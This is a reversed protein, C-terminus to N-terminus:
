SALPPGEKEDVNSSEVARMWAVVAIWYDLTDQAMVPAIRVGNLNHENYMRMAEKRISDFNFAKWDDTM